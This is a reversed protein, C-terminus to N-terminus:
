GDEHCRMLQLIRSIPLDGLHRNKVDRQEQPLMGAVVFAQETYKARYGWGRDWLGAGEGAVKWHPSIIKVEAAVDLQSAVVHVCAIM